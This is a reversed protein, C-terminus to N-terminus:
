SWFCGESFPTHTHRTHKHSNQCHSIWNFSIQLRSLFKIKVSCLTHMCGTHCFVAPFSCGCLRPSSHESHGPWKLSALDRGRTASRQRHLNSACPQTHNVIQIPTTHFMAWKHRKFYGIKQSMLFFLLSINSIVLPVIDNHIWQKVTGLFYVM